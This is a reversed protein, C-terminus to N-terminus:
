DDSLAYKAAAEFTSAYVRCFGVPTEPYWQISWVSNEKLAKEREDPSPWSDDNPYQGYEDAYTQASAYNIAHEDNFGIILCSFKGHLLKLLESPDSM